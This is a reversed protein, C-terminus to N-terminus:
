NSTLSGDINWSFKNHFIMGCVLLKLSSQPIEFKLHLKLLKLYSKFKKKFCIVMILSGNVVIEVLFLFYSSIINKDRVNKVEQPCQPDTTNLQTSSFRASRRLLNIPPQHDQGIQM